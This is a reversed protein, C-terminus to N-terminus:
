KWAHLLIALVDPSKVLHLASPHLDLNAGSSAMLTKVIDQHRALAAAYLPLNGSHDAMLMADCLEDQQINGLLLKVVDLSGGAVFVM